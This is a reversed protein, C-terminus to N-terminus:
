YSSYYNSRQIVAYLVVASTQYKAFSFQIVLQVGTLQLRRLKVIMRNCEELEM